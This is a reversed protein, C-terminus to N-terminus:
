HAGEGKNTQSRILAAIYLGVLCLIALSGVWPDHFYALIPTIFENM